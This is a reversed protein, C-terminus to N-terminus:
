QLGLIKQSWMNKPFRINKPISDLIKGYFRDCIRDHFRVVRHKVIADISCQQDQLSDEYNMPKDRDVVLRSQSPFHIFINLQNM